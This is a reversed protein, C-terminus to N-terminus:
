SLLKTLVTCEWYHLPLRIWSLDDKAVGFHEELIRSADDARYLATRDVTFRTSFSLVWVHLYVTIQVNVGVLLVNKTEFVLVESNTTM